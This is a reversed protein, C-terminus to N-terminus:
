QSPIRRTIQTLSQNTCISRMQCRIISAQATVKDLPNITQRTSTSPTLHHVKCVQKERLMEVTLAKSKSTQHHIIQLLHVEKNRSIVQFVRKIVTQSPALEQTISFNLAEENRIKRVQLAIEITLMQSSSAAVSIKISQLRHRGTPPQPITKTNKVELVLLQTVELKRLVRRERQRLLVM